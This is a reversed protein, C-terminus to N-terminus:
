QDMCKVTKTASKIVSSRWEELEKEFSSLTDPYKKSLDNSESPDSVLDYLESSKLIGKSYSGYMKYRDGSIAVNYTSDFNDSVSYMWKITSNRTDASNKLLPMISVGDIPRDKPCELELLDCLTPMLDTSVVSYNTARNSTIYAPWEIIGPVRIGGEYLQGKHGRLFAASGPSGVYYGNDSTFWLMTNTSIKHDILLQRVQGVADDLASIAGYYDIQDQDYGAKYYQEIYGFYALYRVHVNHFPLYAFFPKSDNKRKELFEGFKRVIFHADDGNEAISSNVLKDDATVTYYNTCPPNGKYHGNICMTTDNFCACNMNVSPASRETAWWEQFGHMGPHSVPWKPNGGKLPIFDGLHWKGYMYTYYGAKSLLEAITIETLPLPKKEPIEFDNSGGGANATWVCYRNHNRGTLITGRTPSCVPGGSYYRDLRISNASSAMKDLNPTTAKGGNYGVDGYGLDDAMMFVINPRTDAEGSVIPFM